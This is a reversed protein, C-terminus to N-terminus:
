LVSAASRIMLDAWVYLRGPGPAVIAFLVTLAIAAEPRVSRSGGRTLERRSVVLEKRSQMYTHEIGAKGYLNGDRVLRVFLM